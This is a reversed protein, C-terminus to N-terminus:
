EFLIEEPDRYQIVGEYKADVVGLAEAVDISNSLAKVWADKADDWRVVDGFKFNHDPQYVKNTKYARGDWYTRRLASNGRNGM